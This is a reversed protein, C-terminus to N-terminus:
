MTRIKSRMHTYSKLRSENTTANYNKTTLKLKSAKIM